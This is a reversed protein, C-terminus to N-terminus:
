IEDSLYEFLDMVSQQLTYQTEWGLKALKSCDLGSHSLTSDDHRIIALPRDYRDRCLSDVVQLYQATSVPHGSGVNFVEGRWVTNDTDIFFSIARVVDRIDVLDLINDLGRATVSDGRLASHVVRHPFEEVRLGAAAGFLRAVRLSVASVAARRQALSCVAQEILYKSFAYPQAFDLVSSEKKAVDSDAYVSQSSINIVRPLECVDALDLMKTQYVHSEAIREVGHPPRASAFNVLVDAWGFIDRLSDSNDAYMKVNRMSQYMEQAQAISRHRCVAIVEHGLASQTAVFHRALWSTAGLVVVAPRSVIRSTHDSFLYRNKPWARCAVQRVGVKNLNIFLPRKSGSVFNDVTLAVENFGFQARNGTIGTFRPNAEFFILGASTMRGQLNIPGRPRYPALVAVVEAVASWVAPTDLPIIEVPVGSKLRNQSAFQALLEGDRDYLLQVSIEAVQMVKGAAVAAQIAPLQPDENDPFLFPQVIYDKSLEQVAQRDHIIKLGVSASGGSPKAIAPLPILTEDKSALYEAVSCTPVVRDTHRRFEKSWALKDRLLSVLPAPSVVVSIGAATFQEMRQALLLLEQDHGPIVVDIKHHKSITLLQSIYNDATILPLEVFSDCDAVAYSHRAQDSGVLFYDSNHHKLSDVVSQGVGSGVCTVLVRKRM